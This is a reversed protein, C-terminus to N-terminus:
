SGGRVYHMEITPPIRGDLILRGIPREPDSLRAINKNVLKNTAARDLVPDILQDLRFLREHLVHEFSTPLQLQRLEAVPFQQIEHRKINMRRLRVDSAIMPAASIYKRQFGYTGAAACRGET